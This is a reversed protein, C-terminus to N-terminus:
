EDTAPLLAGTLAGSRFATVVAGVGVGLALATVLREVGFPVDTPLVPNSLVALRFVGWTALFVGSALLGVARVRAALVAVLALVVAIGAVVTPVVSAGIGSPPGAYGVWAVGAALLGVLLVLAPVVRDPLRAGAYGLGAAVVLALLLWLVPSVAEHYTIEGQVEVAEGDVELPVPGLWAFSEGRAVPADPTMLHTRHDHWAYAGGTAVQEWDPELDVVDEGQLRAPVLDGSGFRDDNIYTAPSNRNREVTGDADVRLYPEGQYGLVVVETGEDVTLALFADGGATEITFGGPDPEVSTVESSYDGPKAADAAAPGAGLVLGVAALAMVRLTIARASM